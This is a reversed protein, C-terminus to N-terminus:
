IVEGPAIYAKGNILVDGHEAEKVEINSLQNLREALSKTFGPPM